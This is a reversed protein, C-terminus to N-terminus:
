LAQGAHMNSQIEAHMFNFLSNVLRQSLSGLFITGSIPQTLIPSDLRYTVTISSSFSVVLWLEMVKQINGATDKHNLKDFNLKDPFYMNVMACLALGDRWSDHLDTIKVNAKHKFLQDQYWSLLM